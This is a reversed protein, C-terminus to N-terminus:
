VSYITPLTLHTYSVAKYGHKELYLPAMAHHRRGEDSAGILAVARPEFLAKGLSIKAM